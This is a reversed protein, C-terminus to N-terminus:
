PYWSGGTCGSGYDFDSHIVRLLTARRVYAGMFVEGIVIRGFGPWNITYGNEVTAGPPLGSVSELISGVVYGSANRYFGNAKSDLVFRHSLAQRVDANNKFATELADLTPYRDFTALDLNLNVRSGGLTLGNIKTGAMTIEPHPADKRHFSRLALQFSDITMAGGDIRVGRAETFTSSGAPGGEVYPDSQVKSSASAISLLEHNMEAPSLSAIGADKGTIVVGPSSAESLGGVSPLDVAAVTQVPLHTAINGVKTITGGAAFGGAIHLYRTPYNNPYMGRM